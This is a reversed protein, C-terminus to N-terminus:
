GEYPRAGARLAGSLALGAQAIAAIGADLWAPESVLWGVDARLRDDEVRLESAQEQLQVLRARVEPKLVARVVHEPRGKVVFRGDFAADGTEIDEMGILAGLRSFGNQRTLSLGLGLPRDFHM